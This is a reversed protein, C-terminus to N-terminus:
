GHSHREPLGFRKATDGEYDFQILVAPEEGVVWADHGPEIVVASPAVYEFTCGDEYEGQIHGRALFAVHAHECVPTGIIPGLTETWRHGPPYVARKIRGNAAPVVDVVVGGLEHHQAGEIPALLADDDM